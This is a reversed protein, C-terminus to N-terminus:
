FGRFSFKADSIDTKDLEAVWCVVGGLSGTILEEMHIQNFTVTLTNDSIEVADIEYPIDYDPMYFVYLVLMKNAFDVSSWWPFDTDFDVKDGNPFASVTQNYAAKMEATILKDCAERSDVIVAMEEQSDTFFEPFNWSYVWSDCHLKLNYPLGVGDSPVNNELSSKNNKELELILRDIEDQMSIFEANKDDLEGRLQAVEKQLEEFNAKSIANTCASLATAFVMAIAFVISTAIKKM